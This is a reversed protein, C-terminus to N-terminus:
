VGGNTVVMDRAAHWRAPDGRGSQWVNLDLLQVALDYGSLLNSLEVDCALDARFMIEPHALLLQGVGGACVREGATSSHAPEYAPFGM